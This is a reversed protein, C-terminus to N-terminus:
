QPLQSRLEAVDSKDIGFGLTAIKKGNPVHRLTSGDFQLDAPSSVPFRKITMGLPNCVQVENATVRLMPNKLQLVGLVTLIAGAVVGIWQPGLLSVLFLLIGIVLAALALPKNYRVSVPRMVRHHRVDPDRM